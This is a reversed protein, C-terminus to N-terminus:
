ESAETEEERGILEPEALEAEEAEEEEPEKAIQPIRVQFVTIDSDLTSKVGDPLPLEAVTITEDLKLASVEVIINEPLNGPLCVVEIEHLYQELIGGAATGAPEGHSELPLTATIEEDARVEQFDFHLPHGTLPNVQIDKVIVSLEDKSDVKLTILGSHHLLGHVEEGSVTLMKASEGHGYVVAPIKGERRLRRSVSTGCQERSEVTVFNNSM